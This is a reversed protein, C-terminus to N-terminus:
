FIYCYINVYNDVWYKIRKCLEKDESPDEYKELLDSYEKLLSDDRKIWRTSGDSLRVQYM